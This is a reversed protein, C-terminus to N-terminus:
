GQQSDIEGVLQDLSKNGELMKGNVYFSPTGTLNFDNAAQDRVAEM